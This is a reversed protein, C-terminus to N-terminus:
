KFQEINSYPDIMIIVYLISTYDIDYILEKFLTKEMFENPKQGLERM